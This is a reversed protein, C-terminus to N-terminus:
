FLEVFFYILSTSWKAVEFGWNDNTDNHKLIAKGFGSAQVANNQNIISAHQMQLILICHLAVSAHAVPWKHNVESSTAWGFDVTTRPGAWILCGDVSHALLYWLGVLGSHWNSCYRKISSSSDRSVLWCYDVCNHLVDYNKVFLLDIASVTFCQLQVKYVALIWSPLSM